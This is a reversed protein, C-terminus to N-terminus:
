FCATTGDSVQVDNTGDCVCLFKGTSNWFLTSEPFGSGCPDATKSAPVLGFLFKAEGTSEILIRQTGGTTVAVHDAEPSYLGTNGDGAFFLSANAASGANDWLVPSRATIGGFTSGLQIRATGNVSFYVVGDVVEYFGTNGGWALSPSAATNAGIGIVGQTNIWEEGTSSYYLLDRDALSTTNVFPIDSSATDLGIQWLGDTADFSLAFMQAPSLNNSQPSFDGRSISKAQFLGNTADFSKNLMQAFSDTSSQPSRSKSLFQSVASDYAIYALLGGSMLLGVLLGVIAIVLYQKQNM